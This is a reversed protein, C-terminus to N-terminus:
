TKTFYQGLSRYVTATTSYLYGNGTRLRGTEINKRTSQRMYSGSDTKCVLKADLGKVEANKITQILEMSLVIELTSMEVGEETYELAM